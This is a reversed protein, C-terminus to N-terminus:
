ERGTAFGENLETRPNFTGMDGYTKEKDSKARSVYAVTDVWIVNAVKGM